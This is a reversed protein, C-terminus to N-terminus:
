PRWEDVFARAEERAHVGLKAYIHRVHVRLTSRAICLNDEIVALPIDQSLLSLVEEERHTLGYHRAILACRYMRDELYGSTEVREVSGGSPNAGVRVAKIGWTTVPMRNTMLLMSLLVLGSAVGILVVTVEDPRVSAISALWDGLASSPINVVLCAAQTIGFLWEPPAGFRFCVANLTMYLYLMFGSYGVSVLFGRVDITDALGSVGCLLIGAAMLAPGVKFLLGTDFRDFAFALCFLVVAGVLLRAVESSVLLNGDLHGVVYFAFSFVTMLIAPRWPFKWAVGEELVRPERPLRDSMCLFTTSAVPLAVVTAAIAVSGLGIAVMHICATLAFSGAYAIWAVSARHAALQANWMVFFGANAMGRLAIAVVDFAAGGVPVQLAALDLVPVLLACAGCGLVVARGGLHWEMTRARWACLLMLAATLASFVGLRVFPTAFVETGYAREFPAILSEWACYCSMGLLRMPFFGGFDGAPRKAM